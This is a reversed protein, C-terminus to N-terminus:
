EPAEAGLYQTLFADSEALLVHRAATSTFYHDTGELEVYKVKRNYLEMEKKLHRSQGVPVNLDDEGHILLVPM